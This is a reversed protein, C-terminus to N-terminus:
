KNLGSREFRGWGRRGQQPSNHVRARGVPSEGVGGEGRAAAIGGVPDDNRVGNYGRANNGNRGEDSRGRNAANGESQWPGSAITPVSLLRQARGDPAIPVNGRVSSKDGVPIQEEKKKM